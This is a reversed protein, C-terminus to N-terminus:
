AEDTTEYTGLIKRFDDELLALIPPVEKRMFDDVKMWTDRDPIRSREDGGMEVGFMFDMAASHVKGHFDQIQDATEKPLYLRRPRFYDLFEAYRDAVIKRREEKSGMGATEFISTYRGVADHFALLKAFTTAVTEATEDFVRTFRTGREAAVIQLQSRLKEIAIESEAELQAQHTALKQDYEHKIANKMREGIWTKSLWILAATLLASVAASSLISIILDKM